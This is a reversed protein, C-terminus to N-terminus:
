LHKIELEPGPEAIEIEFVRCFFEFESEVCHVINKADRFGHAEASYLIYAHPIGKQDLATVMRESQDPPVVLDKGGQFFIIPCSLKDSHHIPSRAKYRESEQPWPGVLTDLYRSEFKHTDRALAELDSIGYASAGAQFTDSFTLAALTTYGGASGGRIACRTPDVLRHSVLHAVLAECDKVDAIGWEGELKRRYATGFGTSGAYNLDAVAWGRSTYYQIRLNQNKRASATPGGHTTVLLPPLEGEPARYEPNAPPYFYAYGPGDHSDYEIAQPSSAYEAQLAESEIDSLRAQAEGSPSLHEIRAGRHPAGTVCVLGKPDDRWLLYDYSGAKSHWESLTGDGSLIVLSEEGQKCRRAIILEDNVVAFSRTAFIWQPGGFEAECEHLCRNGQDDFCWINWWGTADSVYFLRTEGWQPQMVSEGDGGAIVGAKDLCMDSQNFEALYLLTADWPMNPHDWAVFALQNGCIRPAGYFDHGEHLTTVAGNALDIVVLRNGVERPADLGDTPHTECVAILLNSGKPHCLDAYREATGSRTVARPVSELRYLDQDRFNVFYIGAECVLYSGGGYEHVRTRASFGRALISEGNRVLTVRGAQSPISELWYIDTGFSQIEAYSAAGVAIASANLPSNWSGYAATKISM